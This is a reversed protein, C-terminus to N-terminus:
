LGMPGPQHQLTLSAGVAPLPENELRGNRWVLLCTSAFDDPQDFRARTFLGDSTAEVTVGLERLPVHLGPELPADAPRFLREFPTSPRGPGVVELVLTGPAARTLKSEAPAMSLVRLREAGAKEPTYFRLAAAAYLALTPDSGNVLYLSGGRACDGVDAERALKKQSEVSGAFQGPLALRLLPGIGLQFPASLALAAWWRWRGRPPAANAALPEGAPERRRRVLSWTRELLVAALAASALAPLPLVRGSVPAGTLAVLGLLAGGCSGALARREHPTIASGLARQWLWAGAAALLGLAALALLAPRGGIGAVISPLGLLLEALLAPVGLAARELYALPTEFPSIYFASGHAGYGLAAYAVLYALGIAIPLASRVLGRRLGAAAVEHGAIFTITVLGSESSLLSAVLCGLSLARWRGRGRGGVLVAGHGDGHQWAWLSLAGFTAAILTHRSALWSLPIGFAPSVGFLVAALLAARPSLWRRYLAGAVAAFALMWLVSHLHACLANRGFLADDLALSFSAVPRFFRLRLEPSTFWPLLGREVLAPAPLSPPTFDYLGLWGVRHGPVAGELLLRHSLDDSAFGIFWSPISALVAVGLALLAVSRASAGPSAGGGHPATPPETRTHPM